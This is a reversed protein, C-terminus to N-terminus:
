EYHLRRVWARQVERLSWSHLLESQLTAKRSGASKQLRLDRNIKQADLRNVEIGMGTVVIIHLEASIFSIELSFVLHSCLSKLYDTDSAVIAVSLNAKGM